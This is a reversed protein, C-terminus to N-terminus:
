LASRERRAHCDENVCADPGQGKSAIGLCGFRLNLGEFVGELTIVYDDGGAEHQLFQQLTESSRLRLSLNDLAKGCKREYLGVSLIM